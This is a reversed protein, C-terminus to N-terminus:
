YHMSLDIELDAQCTADVEFRATGAANTSDWSKTKRAHTEIIGAVTNACGVKYAAKGATDANSSPLFLVGEFPM